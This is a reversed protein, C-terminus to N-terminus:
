MRATEGIGAGFEIIHDYELISKERIEEFTLLHHLAKMILLSTLREYFVFSMAKQYSEESHGLKSEGLDLVKLWEQKYKSENLLTENESAYLFTFDDDPHYLPIEQVEKWNKFESYDTYKGLAQNAAEWFNMINKM